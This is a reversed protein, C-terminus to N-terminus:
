FNSAYRLEASFTERKQPEHTVAAAGIPPVNGPPAFGFLIWSSDINFDIQRKFLNAAALLTGTDHTFEAKASYLELKEDWENRTFDQNILDGEVELVGGFANVID